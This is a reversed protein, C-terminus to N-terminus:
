VKGPITTIVLDVRRMWTNEAVLPALRERYKLAGLLARIKVLKDAFDEPRNALLVEFFAACEHM